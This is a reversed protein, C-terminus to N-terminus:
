PINEVDGFFAARAYAMVIERIRMALIGSHEKATDPVLDIDATLEQAVAALAEYDLGSVLPLIRFSVYQRLAKEILDDTLLDFLFSMGGREGTSAYRLARQPGTHPMERSGLRNKLIAVVAGESRERTWCGPSHFWRDQVHSYYRALEALMLEYSGTVLFGPEFAERAEHILNLNERIQKPSLLERLREVLPHM